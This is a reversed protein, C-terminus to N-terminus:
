KSSSTELKINENQIKGNEFDYKFKITNGTNTALSKEVAIDLLSDTVNRIELPSAKSLLVKYERNQFNKSSKLTLNVADKFDETPIEMSVEGKFADAKPIMMYILDHANAGALMNLAVNGITSLKLYNDILTSLSVSGKQITRGTPSDLNFNWTVNSNDNVLLPMNELLFLMQNNTADITNFEFSKALVNRAIQTNLNTFKVNLNGPGYHKNLDLIHIDQVKFDFNVNLNSGEIQYEKNIEISKISAFPRGNKNIKADNITYSKKEFNRILCDTSQSDTTNIDSVPTFTARVDSQLGGWKILMNNTLSHLINPLSNLHFNYRAPDNLNYCSLPKASDTYSKSLLFSLQLATPPVKLAIGDGTEIRQQSINWNVIVNASSSYQKKIDEAAYGSSSIILASILTLKTKLKKKNNM